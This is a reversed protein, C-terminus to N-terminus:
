LKCAISSTYDTILAIMLIKGNRLEKIEVDFIDGTIGVTGSNQFTYIHFYLYTLLLYSKDM